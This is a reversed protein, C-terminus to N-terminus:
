RLARQVVAAAEELLDAGPARRVRGGGPRPRRARRTRRPRDGPGVVHEPHRPLLRVAAGLALLRVADAPDGAGTVSLAVARGRVLVGGVVPIDLRRDGIEFLEPLRRELEAALDSAEAALDHQVHAVLACSESFLVWPTLELDLELGPLTRSRAAAVSERYLEVGREIEGKALALEALGNAGFIWALSRRAREDNAM